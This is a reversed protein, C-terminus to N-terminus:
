SSDTPKKTLSPLLSGLKSMDAGSAAAKNEEQIKAFLEQRYVTNGEPYEFGLKVRGGRVDVVKVEISGNIVISEGTRRTILLM